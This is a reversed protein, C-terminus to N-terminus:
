SQKLMEKLEKKINRAVEGRWSTANCLFRLVIDRGDDNFYKTGIGCMTSMAQVYPLAHPSITKWDVFIDAAIAHLHRSM